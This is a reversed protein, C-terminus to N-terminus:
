HGRKDRCRTVHPLHIQRINTLDNRIQDIQIDAIDNVVLYTNGTNTFHIVQNASLTINATSNEDSLM